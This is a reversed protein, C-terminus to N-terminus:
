KILSAIKKEVEEGRLNRAIITGSPDILWNAPVGSIGYEMAIPDSYGIISSVQVWSVDDNNVASEWLSRDNDISYGLIEFNKDRFRAYAKKLYPFERRCPICWSAWFDLLVYKGKYQSLRVPQDEITKSSFDPAKAGIVLKSFLQLKDGFAKAEPLARVRASLGMFVARVAQLQQLSTDRDPNFRGRWTLAHFGISSNPHTDIYKKLVPLMVPNDIQAVALDAQLDRFDSSAPSGSIAASSLKSSVDISIKDSGGVFLTITNPDAFGPVSGTSVIVPTLDAKTVTGSYSIQGDKVAISDRIYSSGSPYSFYVWGPAAQGTSPTWHIRLTFRGQQASLSLIGALLLASLSLCKM